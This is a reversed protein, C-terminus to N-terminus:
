GGGGFRKQLRQFLDTARERVTALTELQHADDLAAKLEQPSLSPGQAALDAGIAKLLFRIRKGLEREGYRSVINAWSKAVSTPDLVTERYLDRLEQVETPNAGAAVAEGTVNLGARIAPGKTALNDRILAQVEGRLADAGPDDRGALAEEMLELAAQQHTADGSLGGLAGELAERSSRGGGLLREVLDKVEKPDFDPLQELHESIREVQKLLRSGKHETELEREGLERKTMREHVSFTLEEAADELMSLPSEALSVAEGQFQGVPAGAAEGGGPGGPGGPM